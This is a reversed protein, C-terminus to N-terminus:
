FPRQNNINFSSIKGDSLIAGSATVFGTQNRQSPNQYDFRLFGSLFIQGGFNDGSVASPNNGGAFAGLTSLTQNNNPLGSPMIYLSIIASGGPTLTIGSSSSCDTIASPSSGNTVTLQRMSCFFTLTRYSFVITQPTPFTIRTSQQSLASISLGNAIVIQNTQSPNNLFISIETSTHSTISTSTLTNSLYIQRYAQATNAILNFFLVLLIKIM